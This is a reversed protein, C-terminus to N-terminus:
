MNVFCKKTYDSDCVILKIQDGCTHTEITSLLCLFYINLM